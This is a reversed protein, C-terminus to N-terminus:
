DREVDCRRCPCLSQDQSRVSARAIAGGHAPELRGHRIETKLFDEGNLQADRLYADANRYPFKLSSMSRPLHAPLHPLESRDLVFEPISTSDRNRRLAEALRNVQPPVNDIVIVQAPQEDDPSVWRRDRQYTGGEYVAPKVTGGLSSLPEVYSDFRIGDDHSEDACDTLLTASDIRRPM